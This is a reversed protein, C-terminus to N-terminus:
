GFNAMVEVTPPSREESPERVHLTSHHRPDRTEPKTLAQDRLLAAGARGARVRARPRSDYATRYAIMYLDHLRRAATDGRSVAVGPPPTWRPRPGAGM